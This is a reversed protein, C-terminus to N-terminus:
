PLFRKSRSTYIKFEEGYKRELHAELSPILIFAFNLAMFLPIFLMAMNQTIIAFGTFLVVDGFYNIHRSYMFMGGTYLRGQNEPRMKWIHRSYESQTNIYSGGIYLLIGIVDIINVPHSKNGGVYLLVLLIAPMIISITLAEVWVMKRKIFVFLMFVVRFFYIISCCLLIIRRILDGKIRYPKLWNVIGNVDGFMLWTCLLIVVVFSTTILCKPGISPDHENRFIM